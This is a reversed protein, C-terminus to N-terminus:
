WDGGEQLAGDFHQPHACNIMYYAPCGGTAPRDRRGGGGASRRVAAARRDRGHILDRVSHGRRRRRARRRHGRRCPDHHDRDGHRCGYRPLGPDATSTTPRPRARAMQREPAYGDGRPGVCGSLVVRGSGRFGARLESMLGIAARNLRAVADADFGLRAGWERSCRWTPSELIFNTGTEEAIALYRGYYRRLAERGAPSEMLVFAAFLPLEIGDHFILTTEIGGDTLFPAGSMQPLARSRFSTMDAQM